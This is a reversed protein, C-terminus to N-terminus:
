KTAFIYFLEFLNLFLNISDIIKRIYDCFSNSSLLNQSLTSGLLKRILLEGLATKKLLWIIVICKFESSVAKEGILEGVTVVLGSNLEMKKVGDLLQSKITLKLFLNLRLTFVELIPKLNLHLKLEV